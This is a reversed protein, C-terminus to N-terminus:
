KVVCGGKNNFIVVYNGTVLRFSMYYVHLHMIITIARVNQGYCTRFMLGIVM